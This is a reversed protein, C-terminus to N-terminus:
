VHPRDGPLDKPKLILLTMPGIATVLAVSAFALAWATVGGGALDLILGVALPGIFGGAYGMTSHVALTAGRQGPLASGAAGATLSSSDAWILMGYLICLVAAFEYSVAPAFGIALAMAMSALMVIFVFRRRGIRMALENGSVSAWVGFLALATAIATPSIVPAGDGSRAAAFFLFTVVWTRLVSMEWTHVLYGLSYALASRNRLVPLFNLLATHGGIRRQPIRSPLLAAMILCALLAGAGGIAIAWQWGFWAAAMGAVVFSCAGSVGVAAAHFSVARSQRPGEVLDSLAKLGPMYTGAWGIGALIRFFVASWLGEALLAYGFLAMATLATSFLYVRKPDVRDTLSVLVPVTLTYAAYFAGVIWGAETNTLRWTDIFAPLLAAVAFAGIQALAQSVCIVATIRGPTM